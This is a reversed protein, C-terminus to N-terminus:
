HDNAFPVSGHFTELGKLSTDHFVMTRVGIKRFVKQVETRVLMSMHGLM